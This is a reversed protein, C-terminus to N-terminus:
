LIKVKINVEDGEFIDEASRVSKKICLLYGSEKHPFLSSNWISNGMEARIKVFGKTFVRRIDQSLKRDLTVFYWGVDGPWRWVKARIVFNKKM